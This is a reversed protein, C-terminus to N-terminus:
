TGIDHNLYLKQQYRVLLLLTSVVAARKALGELTNMNLHQIAHLLVRSSCVM